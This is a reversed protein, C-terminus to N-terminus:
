PHLNNKKFHQVYSGMGCGFDCLTKVKETKLFVLLADSLSKDYKHKHSSAETGEWFGNENIKSKIESM